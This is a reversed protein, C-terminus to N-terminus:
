RTIKQIHFDTGFGSGGNGILYIGHWSYDCRVGGVRTLGSHLWSVGWLGWAIFLLISYLIPTPLELFFFPSFLSFSLSNPFGPFLSVRLPFHPHKSPNLLTLTDNPTSSDKTPFVLGVRYTFQSGLKLGLEEPRPPTGM